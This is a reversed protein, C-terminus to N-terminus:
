STGATRRSAPARVGRGREGRQRGIRRHDDDVLQALLELLEDLAARRAFPERAGAAAGRHPAHQVAALGAAEPGPDEIRPAAPQHVDQGRRQVALQAEVAVAVGDRRLLLPPQRPSRTATAPRDTPRATTEVIACSPM